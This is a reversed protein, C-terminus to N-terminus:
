LFGIISLELGLYRYHVIEINCKSSDWLKFTQIKKEFKRFCYKFKWVTMGHDSSELLLERIDTQGIQLYLMPDRCRAVLNSPNIALEQNWLM